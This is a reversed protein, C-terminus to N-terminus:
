LRLRAVSARLPMVWFALAAPGGARCGDAVEVCPPADVAAFDLDDNYVRVLRLM